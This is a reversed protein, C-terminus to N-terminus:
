SGAQPRASQGCDPPLGMCECWEPTVQEPCKYLKGRDWVVVWGCLHFCGGGINKGEGNAICDVLCKDVADCRPRLVALLCSEEESPTVGAAIPASCDQAKQCRALAATTPVMQIPNRTACASLLSTALFLIARPRLRSQRMVSRSSLPAARHRVPSAPIGVGM